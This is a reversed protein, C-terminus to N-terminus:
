ERRWSKSLLGWGEVAINSYSV